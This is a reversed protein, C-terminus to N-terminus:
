HYNRNHLKGPLKGRTLVQVPDWETPCPRTWALVVKSAPVKTLTTWYKSQCRLLTTGVRGLVAQQNWLNHSALDIARHPWGLQDVETKQRCAVRQHSCLRVSNTLDDSMSHVHLARPALEHHNSKPGQKPNAHRVSNTVTTCWLRKFLFLPSIDCIRSFISGFKAPM